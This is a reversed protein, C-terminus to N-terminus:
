IPNASPVFEWPLGFRTSLEAALARVGYVETAYHGCAYLNLRHEQAFVFNHEKLEGTVLTDVGAAVLADLAGYGGGTVIAVSSPAASGFELTTVTAFRARLREALETRSIGATTILGIDRDGFRLFTRERALGLDAALLANNGLEAHADLPLHAAYVALNARTLVELKRHLVGTWPRPSEWFMGHHVLLLDIGRAAANEFPALGADVAAGIKQVFGSNQMQLGNFAGPYDPFGPVDLRQDCYRVIDELNIV